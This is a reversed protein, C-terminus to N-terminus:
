QVDKELSKNENHSRWQIIIYKYFFRIGNDIIYMFITLGQISNFKDRLIIMGVHLVQALNKFVHRKKNGPLSVFLPLIVIKKYYENCSANM